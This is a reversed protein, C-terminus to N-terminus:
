EGIERIALTLLFICFAVAIVSPGSPLNLYYSATIGGVFSVVGLAPSIIIFQRFNRALTKASAAPIVVMASALIAGTVKISLAVASAVFIILFTDYLKVSVGEAEAIEPLFASKILRRLSYRLFILFGILLLASLGIDVLGILLIDGFLFQMLYTQSLGKLAILIIGAAISGGYFAGLVTDRSLPFRNWVTSALLGVAVSYPILLLSPEVELLLAIASGLIAAHAIFDSFFSMGKTVVFVGMLPFLVGLVLGLCLALRMFPYNLVEMNLAGGAPM